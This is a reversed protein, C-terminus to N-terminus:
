VHRRLEDSCVSQQLYDFYFGGCGDQKTKGCVGARERQEAAQSEGTWM